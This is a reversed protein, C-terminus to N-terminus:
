QLATLREVLKDYADFESDTMAAVADDGIDWYPVHEGGICVSLGDSSATTASDDGGGGGGDSSSSSSSSSRARKIGTIHLKSEVSSSQQQQQRQTQKKKMNELESEYRDLLLAQDVRDKKAQASKLRQREMALKNAQMKRKDEVSLRSQAWPLEELERHAGGGAGDAGDAGDADDDGEQKPEVLVIELDQGPKAAIRRNVRNAAEMDLESSLFVTHHLGKERYVHLEKATVRLQKDLPGLRENFRKRLDAKDEKLRAETAKTLVLPVHQAAGPTLVCSPCVFERKNLTLLQMLSYETGQWPCAARPCIYMQKVRETRRSLQARIMAHRYLVTNIFQAYDIKWAAIVTNRSHNRRVRKGADQLVEQQTVPVILGDLHLQSMVARIQKEHLLLARGLESEPVAHTPYIDLRMFSDMVVATLQPYYSHITMKVLKRMETDQM